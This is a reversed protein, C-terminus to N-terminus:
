DEIYNLITVILTALTFLPLIIVSTVRQAIDWFDEEPKIPFVILDGALLTPNPKSFTSDKKDEDFVFFDRYNLVLVSDTKLNPNKNKTRIFKFNEYIKDDAAGGTLSILEVLSTEEPILYMGPNKVGGWVIVEIAGKDKDSYNYYNMGAKM